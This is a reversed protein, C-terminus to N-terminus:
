RCFKILQTKNLPRYRNESIEDFNKSFKRGWGASLCLLMCVNLRRPLPLFLLILLSLIYLLLLVIAWVKKKMKGMTNQSNQRMEGYKQPMRNSKPMLGSTNDVCHSRRSKNIVSSWWQLKNVAAALSACKATNSRGRTIKSMLFCSLKNGSNNNISNLIKCRSGFFGAGRVSQRIVSDNWLIREIFKVFHKLFYLVTFLLWFWIRGVVVTCVKNQLISTM